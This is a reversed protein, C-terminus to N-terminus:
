AGVVSALWTLKPITRLAGVEDDQCCWGSSFDVIRKGLADAAKWNETDQYFKVKKMLRTILDECLVVPNIM